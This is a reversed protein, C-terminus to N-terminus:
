WSASALGVLCGSSGQIGAEGIPAVWELSVGVPSVADHVDDAFDFNQRCPLARVLLTLLDSRDQAIKLLSEGRASQPSDANVVVDIAFPELRIARIAFGPCPHFFFSSKGRYPLMCPDESILLPTM